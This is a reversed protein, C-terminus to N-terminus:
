KKRQACLADVRNNFRTFDSEDRQHGKVHIFRATLAREELVRLILRLRVLVLWETVKHVGLLWPATGLYDSVIRVTQGEPTWRLGLAVALLEASVNKIPSPPHHRVHETLYGDPGVVLAAYSGSSAGDAFAYYLDPACSKVDNRYIWKKFTPNDYTPQSTSSVHALAREALVVGRTCGAGCQVTQTEERQGKAKGQTPRLLRGLGIWGCRCRWRDAV